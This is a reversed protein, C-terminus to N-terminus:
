KGNGRWKKKLVRTKTDEKTKSNKQSELVTQGSIEEL